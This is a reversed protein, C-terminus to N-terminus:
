IMWYPHAWSLLISLVQNMKQTYKSLTINQKTIQLDKLIQKLAEPVIKQATDNRANEPYIDIEIIMGDYNLDLAYQIEELIMTHDSTIHSPEILLPLNPFKSQLEIGIQWESNDKYKKKDYTSFRSHIFGLKEIKANYL